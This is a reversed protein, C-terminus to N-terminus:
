RNLKYFKNVIEKRFLESYIKSLPELSREMSQRQINNKFARKEFDSTGFTIKVEDKFFINRFYEEYVGQDDFPFAFVRYPIKFRENLFNLSETTQRLQEELSLDKYLPHDISHAGFAFGDNILSIIEESTLYPRKEKLYREFDFNLIEAIDDLIFKDQYNISLISKRIDQIDKGNLLLIEKIKKLINSDDEENIKEILLSAKNRFFMEKNDIFASNLFFMAPISHKKLIPAIIDYVERYGDDFTLLFSKTPAKEKKDDFNLLDDLSIPSFYKLLFELDNEFQNVNKYAYLHILHKLRKDSVIHYLPFFLKQQQISLLIPFPLKKLGKNLIKLFLSKGYPM